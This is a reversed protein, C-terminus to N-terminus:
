IMIVYAGDVSVGHIKSANEISKKVAIVQEANVTADIILYEYELIEKLEPLYNLSNKGVVIFNIIPKPLQNSVNTLEELFLVSVGECMLLTNKGIQRIYESEEINLITAIKNHKRNPTINFHINADGTEEEKSNTFCNNGIFLDVYAHAQLDYFIVKKQNTLKLDSYLTLLALCFLTISFYRFLLLKRMEIFRVFVILCSFLLLVTYIKLYLDGVIAFGINSIDSMIENFGYALKEVLFGLATSITPFPDLIMILLSGGIIAMATPIALLNTVLSLTPLQHFYYITIPLTALQASISLATIKWFFDIFRNKIYLARYIKNYLYIIGIVAAYSLQFSVSYLLNPNILLLFFASVLISNYINSKRSLIEAILVITIMLSARLVSPSSGTIFAFSWIALLMIGYYIWKFRGKKISRLLISFILFIIGVHLGSVALIHSTGTSQYVYEMESTIENRRGLVMARIMNLERPNTINESLKQEFYNGAM